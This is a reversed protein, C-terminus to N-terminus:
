SWSLDQDKMVSSGCMTVQSELKNSHEDIIDPLLKIEQEADDCKSVTKTKHVDLERNYKISTFITKIIM